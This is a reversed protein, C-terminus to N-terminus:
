LTCIANRRIVNCQVTTITPSSSTITTDREVRINYITYQIIYISYHINTYHSPLLQQNYNHRTGSYGATISYYQLVPKFLQTENWGSEWRKAVSSRELQYKDFDIQRFYGGDSGDSGDVDDDDDDSTGVSQYKEFGIQWIHKWDIEDDHSAEYDM